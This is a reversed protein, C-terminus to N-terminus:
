CIEAPHGAPHQPDVIAADDAQTPMRQGVPSAPCRTPLGAAQIWAAVGHPAEAPLTHEEAARLTPAAGDNGQGLWM